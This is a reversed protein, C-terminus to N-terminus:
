AVTIGLIGNRHRWTDRDTKLHLWSALLECNGDGGPVAEGYSLLQSMHM